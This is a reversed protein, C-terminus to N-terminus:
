SHLYTCWCRFKKDFAKLAATIYINTGRYTSYNRVLKLVFCAKECGGGEANSFKLDNHLLFLNIKQAICAKFTKSLTCIITIPRNNASDSINGIKDKTHILKGLSLKKLVYGVILCKDIFKKM